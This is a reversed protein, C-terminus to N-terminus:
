QDIEERPGLVRCRADSRDIYNEKDSENCLATQEQWHKKWPAERLGLVAARLAVEAAAAYQFFNTGAYDEITVIVTWPM